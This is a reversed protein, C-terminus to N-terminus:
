WQFCSRKSICKWDVNSCEGNKFTSTNQYSRRNLSISEPAAIIAVLKGMDELHFKQISPPAMKKGFMSYGAALVSILLAHYLDNLISEKNM